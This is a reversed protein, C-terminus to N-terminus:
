PRMRCFQTKPNYSFCFRKAWGAREILNRNAGFGASATSIAATRFLLFYLIQLILTFTEPGACFRGAEASWWHM